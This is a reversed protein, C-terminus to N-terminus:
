LRLRKETITSNFNNLMTIKQNEFYKEGSASPREKIVTRTEIAIMDVGGHAIEEEDEYEEVYSKSIIKLEDVDIFLYSLAVKYDNLAISKWEASNGSQHITKYLISIVGAIHAISQCYRLKEYYPILDEEDKFFLLFRAEKTKHLAHTNRPFHVLSEPRFHVLYEASFHVVMEPHFQVM